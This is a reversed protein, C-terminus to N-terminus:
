SDGSGGPTRAQDGGVPPAVRDPDSPQNLAETRAARGGELRSAEEPSYVADQDRRRQIPTITANTWNGQLDPRGDATRPMVWQGDARAQVQATTQSSFGSSAIMLLVAPIFITRRMNM